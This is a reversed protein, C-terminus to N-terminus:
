YGKKYSAFKLIYLYSMVMIDYSLSTIIVMHIYKGRNSCINAWVNAGFVCARIANTLIILGEEKRGGM